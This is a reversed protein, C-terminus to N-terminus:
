RGYRNDAYPRRGKRKNKKYHRTCQYLDDQTRKEQYAQERLIDKLIEYAAYRSCDAHCTGTRDPCDRKCPNELM